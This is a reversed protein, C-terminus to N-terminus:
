IFNVVHYVAEDITDPEKHFEEEFRVEDDRLGDLFRRVPDEERTRRNRYGHAKDYLMELDAAYGETTEGARQNRRSLKM